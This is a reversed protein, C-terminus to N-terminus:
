LQLYTLLEQLGRLEAPCLMLNRIQPDCTRIRGPDGIFGHDKGDPGFPGTGAHRYTAYAALRAGCARERELQRWVQPQGHVRFTEVGVQASCRCVVPSPETM